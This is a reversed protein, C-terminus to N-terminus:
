PLLPAAKRRGAAIECLRGIDNIIADLEFPKVWRGVQGFRSPITEVEYGTAFVFPIQQIQLEDAIVYALEGGLNIDIVAVDFGDEAVQQQADHLQSVPGIIEAGRFQLARALDNAIFYEDEVILVRCRKLADHTDGHPM